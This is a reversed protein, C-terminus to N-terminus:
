AAGEQVQRRISVSSAYCYVQRRQQEGATWREEVFDGDVAITTDWPTAKALTAATTEVQDGFVKVNMYTPNKRNRASDKRISFRLVTRKENVEPAGTLCGTVRIEPRSESVTTM